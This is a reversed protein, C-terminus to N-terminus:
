VPRVIKEFESRLAVIRTADEPDFPYESVVSRASSWKLLWDIEGILAEPVRVYGVETLSKDLRIKLDPDFTHHNLGPKWLLVVMGDDEQYIKVYGSWANGQEEM